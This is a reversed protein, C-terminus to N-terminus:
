GDRRKAYSARLYYIKTHMCVIFFGKTFIKKKILHSTNTNKRIDQSFQGISCTGLGDIFLYSQDQLQHYLEAIVNFIKTNLKGKIGPRLVLRRTDGFEQRKGLAKTKKVMM